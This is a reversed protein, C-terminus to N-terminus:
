QSRLSVVVRTAEAHKISNNLAEIAIQCVEQEV